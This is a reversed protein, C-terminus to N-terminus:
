QVKIRSAQATEAMVIGRAALVDGHHRGVRPTAAGPPRAASSQCDVPTKRRCKAARRKAVMTLVGVRFLPSHHCPLSAQGACDLASQTPVAVSLLLLLIIEATKELKGYSPPPLSCDRRSDGCSKYQHNQREPSLPTTIHNTYSM